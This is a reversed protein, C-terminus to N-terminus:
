LHSDPNATKIIEVASPVDTIIVTAEDEDIITLGCSDTGSATVFNTESTPCDSTVNKTFSCVYSGGPPIAQTVACTGQGILNGYVTDIM